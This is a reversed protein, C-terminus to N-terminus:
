SKLTWSGKPELGPRDASAPEFSIFRVLAETEGLSESKEAPCFKGLWLAGSLDRM